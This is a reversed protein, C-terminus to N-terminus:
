NGLLLGTVLLTVVIMVAYVELIGFWYTLNPLIAMLALTLLWLLGEKWRAWARKWAKQEAEETADWARVAVFIEADRDAPAEDPESATQAAEKVLTYLLLTDLSM